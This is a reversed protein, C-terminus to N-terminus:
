NIKKNSPMFRHRALEWFVIGASVSVNLSHKSGTQPIEWVEDAISLVEDSVGDVENGLVLIYHTNTKPQIEHLPTSRHTQEIAIIRAGLTQVNQLYTFGDDVGEWAVTETAGLATKQIDRHPPRPTFGALIIKDVGLADASRFVSGVNQMSRVDEMLVSVTFPKETLAQEAALQELVLMSKREFAMLTLFLPKNKATLHFVFM